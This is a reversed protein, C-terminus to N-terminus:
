EIRTLEVLAAETAGTFRSPREDGLCMMLADGDVRYIGRAIAGEQPGETATLDFAKPDAAPDLRIIGAGARVDGEM